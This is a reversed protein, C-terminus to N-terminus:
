SERLEVGVLSDCRERLRDIFDFAFHRALSNEGILQGAECFDEYVSGSFSRLRDEVCSELLYLLNQNFAAALCERDGSEVAGFQCSPRNREIRPYLKRCVERFM